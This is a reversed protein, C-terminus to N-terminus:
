YRAASWSYCLMGTAYIGVTDGLDRRLRSLCRRVRRRPAHSKPRAIGFTFTATSGRCHEIVPVVVHALPFPKPAAKLM